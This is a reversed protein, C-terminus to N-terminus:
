CCGIMVDMQEILKGVYADNNADSYDLKTMDVTIKGTDKDTRFVTGGAGAKM